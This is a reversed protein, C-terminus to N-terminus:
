RGGAGATDGSIDFVYVDGAADGCVLTTGGADVTALRAEADLALLAVETGRDVDWLSVTWDDSATFVRGPGAAGVHWTGPHGPRRWVLDGTALDWLRVDDGATLFRDGEGLLLLKPYSGLDGALDVPDGGDAPSWARLRGTTTAFAVRGGDASVVVQQVNAGQDACRAVIDGTAFDFVYLGSPSGFGASAAVVLLRGDPTAAGGDIWHCGPVALTREFVGYRTDGAGRPTVVDLEAGGGGAVLLRQGDPSLRLFQVRGSTPWLTQETGDPLSMALVAGGELDASSSLVRTGGATLSVHGRSGWAAHREALLDGTAVDWVRLTGGGDGTVAHHGTTAGTSVYRRHGTRVVPDTPAPVDLRWVRATGDAAGSVVTDEDPTACLSQVVGWHGALHRVQGSGLATIGLGWREGEVAVGRRPLVVRPAGQPRVAWAPVPGGPGGVAEATVPSEDLLRGSAAQWTRLVGDDGATRVRGDDTLDLGVVPHDLDVSWIPRGTSLHWLALLPRPRGYNGDEAATALLDDAARVAVHPVWSRGVVVTRVLEPPVNRTRWRLAVHSRGRAVLRQRAAAAMETDGTAVARNAVQQLFLAPHREPPFRYLASSEADLLRSLRELATRSPGPASWALALAAEEMVAALGRDDYAEELPAPDRYASAVRDAAEARLAEPDDALGAAFDHVMPHLSLARGDEAPTALSLEVLDLVADDLPRVLADAPQSLGALLGLRAVPLLGGEPLQGALRLVARADENSLGSVQTALTSRVATEHRTALATPSLRQVDVTDLRDAALHRRYGAFTVRDFRALYASALVIALALMGLASCIARAHGREEDDAPVRAAVLLTYAADPPLMGVEQLRVAPLQVWRRTTFLVSCGLEVAATGGLVGEDALHTPDAVNDMVLLMQPHRACHDRLARLYVHDSATRAEGPLLGLEDRALAVFADTWREHSTADVWHVGDFAFAFRHVFEVALQTKGAGGMGVLGVTRVGLRNLDGVLALYLELLDAHRGVFSANPAFPIRADAPRITYDYAPPAGVAAALRQALTDAPLDAGEVIVGHRNTLATPLGTRDLVVAVIPKELARATMWEHRVWASAAAHESWLLVVADSGALAQAIERSWDREISREDRWVRAGIPAVQLLHQLRRAVDVDRSSYSIFVTDGTSTVRDDM